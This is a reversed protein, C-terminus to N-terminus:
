SGPSNLNTLAEALFGPDHPIPLMVLTVFKSKKSNWLYTILQQNPSSQPM